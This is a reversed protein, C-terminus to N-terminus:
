VDGEGRDQLCEWSTSFSYCTKKKKESTIKWFFYFELCPKVPTETVLVITCVIQYFNANQGANCYISSMKEVTWHGQLAHQNM